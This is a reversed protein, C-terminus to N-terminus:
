NAESERDMRLEVENWVDRMYELEYAHVEAFTLLDEETVGHRALIERRDTDGLRMTDTDLAAERLDVYAAVFVEREISDGSPGSCAVASLLTAVLLGRALTRVPSSSPSRTVPSPESPIRMVSPAHYGAPGGLTRM